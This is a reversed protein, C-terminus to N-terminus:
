ILKNFFCATLDGPGVSGRFRHMQSVRCVWERPQMGPWESSAPRAHPTSHHMHHKGLKRQDRVQAMRSREWRWQSGHWNWMPEPCSWAPTVSLVEGGPGVTSEGRSQAETNVIGQPRDGCGQLAPSETVQPTFVQGILVPFRPHLEYVEWPAAGCVWCARKIVPLGSLFVTGGNARGGKGGSEGVGWEEGLFPGKVCGQWSDEVVLKVKQPQFTPTLNNM